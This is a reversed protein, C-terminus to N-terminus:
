FGPINLLEVITLDRESIKYYRGLDAKELPGSKRFTAKYLAGNSTLVLPTNLVWEFM